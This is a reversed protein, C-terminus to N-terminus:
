IPGKFRVGADASLSAWVMQAISEWNSTYLAIPSTILITKDEHYFPTAKNAIPVVCADTVAQDNAVYVTYPEVVPPKDCDASTDVLAAPDPTITDPKVIVGSTSYGFSAVAKNVAEQIDSNIRKQAAEKSLQQGGKANAVTNYTWGRPPSYTFKMTPTMTLTGTGPGCALALPVLALAILMTVTTPTPYILLFVASQHSIQMERTKYPSR